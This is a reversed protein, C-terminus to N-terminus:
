KESEEEDEDDEDDEDEQASATNQHVIKEAARLFREVSERTVNTERLLMQQLSNLREECTDHLLQMNQLKGQLATIEHQQGAITETQEQTLKTLRTVDAELRGIIRFAAELSDRRDELVDKPARTRKLVVRFIGAVFASIGAVYAALVGSDQIQEKLSM